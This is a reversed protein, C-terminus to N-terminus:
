YLLVWHLTRSSCLLMPLRQSILLYVWESRQIKGDAEKEMQDFRSLSHRRGVQLSCSVFFSKLMIFDLISVHKMSHSIQFIRFWTPLMKEDLKKKAFSFKIGIYKSELRHEWFLLHRFNESFHEKKFFFHTFAM